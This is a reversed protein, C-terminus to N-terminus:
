RRTLFATQAAPAAACYDKRAGVATEYPKLEFLYYIGDTTTPVVGSATVNINAGAIVCSNITVTFNAMTQQRRMQTCALCWQYQLCM